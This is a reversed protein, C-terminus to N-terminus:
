KNSSPKLSLLMELQSTTKNPSNVTVGFGRISSLIIDAEPSLPQGRTIFSNIPSTSTDMNLYFYGGNPKQLSGTIAKFTDSNDLSQGKKDALATAVPGGLALFVTNQDLWGHAFLTGQLPVQWQTINKGGITTQTVNFSQVKALTDLKAFTAEATKRDSTDFVLAGGFGLNALLGENSSIAGFAFEGDMWGFIDKDLDINIFKLQQRAQEVAQNFEPYDKSEQLLTQWTQSIGQGSVLAFTDAPFQGIIKANTTQYQFKNQTALNAIAKLRLGGDDVGVGAVMSKIQKLQALNQPSLQRGQPNLATLKEVTNAYDPIYIQALSNKIDVSQSLIKDTEPKSAFSLEGKYTDIAKELAQREPALLLHTNNLVTTYTPKGGGQSAIIKEGKYEYEQIKVNKLGKLKNAFSLAGLKDKIGVVLLINPEQPLPMPVNQAPKTANPPLVAIMVGGIWPKIDKDYSISSDKFLKQDFNQLGKAVLEQAQPSGFQQLKAWSQPDTNIYTAIVATSPVVKATGLPSSADGTPGKLYMYAAIAGATVVVVTGVAFGLFKSKGESM